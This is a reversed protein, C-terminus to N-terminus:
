KIINTIKYKSTTIPASRRAPASDKTETEEGEAATEAVNARIAADVNFNTAQKIAERKRESDLKLDVAEQKVLDVVGKPGFELTDQLQEITGETLLTKVTDKTYFYEPQVDGILEKAAEEDGIILYEKLLERGGDIFTLRELEDFTIKKTEGAAFQRRLGNDPFSYGVAGTDRNTVPIAKNKDVM